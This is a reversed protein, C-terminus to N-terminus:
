SQPRFAIITLDDPKSPTTGDAEATDNMREQAVAALQGVARDLPGTRVL